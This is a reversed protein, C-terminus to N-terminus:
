TSRDGRVEPLRLQLLVVAGVICIGGTLIGPTLPQDLVLAALVAVFFPEITSAIATRMPGLTRLGSLFFAFPLATGFLALLVIWTWALPSLALSLTETATAGILFILGAGFAIYATATASSVDAQVSRIIPLFAAYLVSAALALAVGSPHITTASRIGVTLVIGTLALLLALVRAATIPETRRVAAFITVWAPFTYFLFVLTAAPIYELATLTLWAVAAQMGGGIVTLEVARRRPVSRVSPWGAVLILPLLALAYRLFLVSPLTAGQRLALRTFITITSFGLVAAVVQITARPTAGPSPARHQTYPAASTTM